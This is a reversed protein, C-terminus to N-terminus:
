LKKAGTIEECSLADQSNPCPVTSIYHSIAHSVMKCVSDQLLYLNNSLPAPKWFYTTDNCLHGAILDTVSPLPSFSADGKRNICFMACGKSSRGETSIEGYAIPSMIEADVSTNRANMCSTKLRFGAIM